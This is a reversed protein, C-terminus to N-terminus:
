AVATPALAEIDTAVDIVAPRKSAIAKALAPGIASSMPASPMRTSFGESIAGASALAIAEFRGATISTAVSM